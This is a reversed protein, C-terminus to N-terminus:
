PDNTWDFDFDTAQRDQREQIELDIFEAGEHYQASFSTKEPVLVYGSFILFSSQELQRTMPHRSIAPLKLAARGLYIYLDLNIPVSEHEGYVAIPEGSRSANHIQEELTALTMGEGSTVAYRQM